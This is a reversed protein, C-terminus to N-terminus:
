YRSEALIKNWDEAAADLSQDLPRNDKFARLLHTKFSEQLRNYNNLSPKLVQAGAVQAAAIRRGKGILTTDQAVFFSDQLASKVSPFVPVIKSFALQNPGNTIFSAFAVAMEANASKRSVALSMVALNRVGTEGTVAPAVDTTAYLSPANERIIRLFQPGGIFLAITGGQYLRLAASHGQSISERPMAGAQFTRQWDELVRRGEATNFLAQQGDESVVPVGEAELVEIMDSEVIINFFFAYDGTRERYRRAFDLLGTYTQPLSDPDFGAAAIKARDYILIQTSLYWPVGYLRSNIRLPALAAPLYDARAAPALLSDLPLLAGLETYKKVYDAPLNVVDPSRGAAISNLFKQTIGEYPVDVWKVTIGPNAAEFDAVVSNIYDDFTPSLQLTWFEITNPDREQPGCSAVCCLCLALFLVHGAGRIAAQGGRRSKCFVGSLMNTSVFSM